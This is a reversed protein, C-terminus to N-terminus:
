ANRFYEGADGIFANIESAYKKFCFKYIQDKCTTSDDTTNGDCPVECLWMCAKEMVASVNHSSESCARACDGACASGLADLGAVKCMRKLEAEYTRSSVNWHSLTFNEEVEPYAFDTPLDDQFNNLLNKISSSWIEKNSKM